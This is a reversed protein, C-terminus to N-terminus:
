RNCIIIPRAAPITEEYLDNQSRIDQLMARHNKAIDWLKEGTTAYYLLLKSNCESLKGTEDLEASALHRCTSKSYLLSTVTTEATIELTNKDTIRYEWIDTDCRSDCKKVISEELESSFNFDFPKETYVYKGQANMYLLCICYKVHHNLKEKECHSQVAEQECWLDVVKQIEDEQVNVVCKKRQTESFCRHIKTLSTQGYRLEAPMKTSYADDVLSVECEKYLFAVFFVKLIVSVGTYEGVSDEKPVLSSEGAMIRVDCICGEEAGMCEIEQSFEIGATMKEATSGDVASLYLFSVDARGTVFLMGDSPRCEGIRCRVDKQLISEIPPKGNKLSISDEVSFQHCVANVAQSAITSERRKEITPELVESVILEQKQVVALVNLGVAMHLDIRRASLARCTMHEVCAKICAIAKEQVAKMRITASFEKSFDCCRISDGKADLYLVRIDCVGECTITDETVQYSSIEPVARCKLLKQIDACYDPLNYETDIPVEHCGDFVPDFYEYPEMKMKAQM